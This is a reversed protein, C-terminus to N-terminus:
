GAIGAQGCATCGAFAVIVNAVCMLVALPIGLGLAMPKDNGRWVLFTVSWAYLIVPSALLALLSLTTGEIILGFLMLIAPALGWLIFAPFIWGEPKPETPKSM